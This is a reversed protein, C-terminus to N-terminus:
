REAQRKQSCWFDVQSAWDAWPFMITFVMESSRDPLGDGPLGSERLVNYFLSKHLQTRFTFKKLSGTSTTLKLKFFM